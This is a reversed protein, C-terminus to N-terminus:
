ERSGFLVSGLRVITAGEAVAWEFDGSMGMSLERMEVGPIQWSRADELLRRLRVFAPRVIEERVDFPAITMLGEVRLRDFSAIRELLPRLEGEDVGFKSEEGSTNVEVLVPVTREEIEARQQIAEAIRVSDVSEIIDFWRVAHRAKNTQLHGVLHWTAANRGIEEIKACGEQIRNEGIRTLGAGIAAEILPVPLTKTVGVINIGSPDRGAGSAARAIRERVDELRSPLAEIREDLNAM